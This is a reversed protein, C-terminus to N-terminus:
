VGRTRRMVQELLPAMQAPTVLTSELRSFEANMAALEGTLQQLRLRPVENPDGVLQRKLEDRQIDFAALETRERALERELTMLRARQPALLLMDGGFGLLVLLAGLVMVRERLSLADIRARLTTWREHLGPSM